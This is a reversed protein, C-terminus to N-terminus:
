GDREMKWRTARHILEVSSDLGLKSKINDRYTEITKVSLCLRTAVDRTRLGQGLLDFVELERDSLGEIPDKAQGHGANIVRSLMETSMQPNLYIRSDLVCRIAELLESQPADKTLYGSAGARMAREVYSTQTHMSAVLVKIRPWRSRVEKIVELGSLDGLTLDVIVLQPRHQSIGTLAEVATGAEGVIELDNERSILQVLGRRTLPHDDVVYVRTRRLSARPRASAKATMAAKKFTSNTDPISDPQSRTNELQGGRAKFRM